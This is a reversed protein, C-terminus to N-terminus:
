NKNLFNKLHLSLYKSISLKFHSGDTFFNEYDTKKCDNDPCLFVFPDFIFFNFENKLANLKIYNEKKNLEYNNFHDINLFTITEPHPYIYIVKINKPLSHLLQNLKKYSIIKTNLSIFLYNVDFSQSIEEYKKIIIKSLDVCNKIRIYCNDFRAKYISHGNNLGVITPVLHDGYSNGIIYDLSTESADVICNVGKYYSFSENSNKCNDFQLIWNGKKGIKRVDNIDVIKTYFSIMNQFFIDRFKYILQKNNFMIFLIIILILSFIKICKKYINDFNTKKNFRLEVFRYSLYSILTTISITIFFIIFFNDTNLKVFSIVPLHWLFFSFSIDGYFKFFNSLNTNKFSTINMLFYFFPLILIPIILRYSIEIESFSILSLFIIFFLIFYFFHVEKIKRLKKFTILYILAGLFFEWFRSFTFYYNSFFKGSSFIFIYFSIIIGAILLFSLINKININFFKKLNFILSIIIGYFIYFQIEVSLSWTHHLWKTVDTFYELNPHAIYYLNSIGLLSTFTSLIINLYTGDDIATFSFFLLNFFILFIILNPYLRKIRRLLYEFVDFNNKNTINEFISNTIVYGSLIFFIDVGIYFFRFINQDFHFLFIILVALGRLFQVDERIKKKIMPKIISFRWWVSLQM